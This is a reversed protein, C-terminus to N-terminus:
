LAASDENGIWRNLGKQTRTCIHCHGIGKTHICHRRPYKMIQKVCALCWYTVDGTNPDHKQRVKEAPHHCVEERRYSV